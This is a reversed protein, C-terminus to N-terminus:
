DENENMVPPGKGPGKDKKLGTLNLVSHLRHGEQSGQRNRGLVRM